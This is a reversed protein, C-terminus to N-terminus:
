VHGGYMLVVVLVLWALVTPVTFTTAWRALRHKTAAIASADVIYTGLEAQWQRDSLAGLDAVFRDPDHGYERAIRGFFLKSPKHGMRRSRPLVTWAVLGMSILFLVGYLGVVLGLLLHAAPDFTAVIPRIGGVNGAVPGILFAHLSAVLGAKADAFRIHDEVRSLVGFWSQLRAADHEFADPPPAPTVTSPPTPQSM